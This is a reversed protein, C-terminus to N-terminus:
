ALHRIQPVKVIGLRIKEELATCQARSYMYSSGGKRRTLLNVTDKCFYSLYRKNNLGLILLADKPSCADIKAAKMDDRLGTIESRFDSRIGRLQGKLDTRLGKVEKLIAILEKIRM